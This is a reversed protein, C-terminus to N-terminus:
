LPDGTHSVRLYQHGGDLQVDWQREERHWHWVQGMFDVPGSRGSQPATEHRFARGNRWAPKSARESRWDWDDPPIFYYRTGIHWGIRRAEVLNEMLEELPVPAPVAQADDGDPRRNLVPPDPLCCTPPRPLCCPHQREANPVPPATRQLDWPDLDSSAFPHAHYHELIAVVRATPGSAPQGDCPEFYIDVENGPPWEGRRIEPVVIQPNRWNGLDSMEDRLARKWSLRLGPPEPVPTASCGGGSERVYHNLFQMLARFANGGTGRQGISSWLNSLEDDEVFPVPASRRELRLQDFRLLVGNAPSYADLVANLTWPFDLLLRTM